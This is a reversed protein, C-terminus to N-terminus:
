YLLNERLRVCERGAILPQRLPIDMKCPTLYLAYLFTPVVRPKSKVLTEAKCLNVSM